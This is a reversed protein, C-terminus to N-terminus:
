GRELEAIRTCFICNCNNPEFANHYHTDKLRLEKVEEVLVKAFHDKTILVVEEYPHSRLLMGVNLVFQEALAGPKM